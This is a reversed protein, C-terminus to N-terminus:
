NLNLFERGRWSSEQESSRNGDWKVLYNNTKSHRGTIVGHVIKGAGGRGYSPEEWRWVDIAIQTKGLRNNAKKKLEDLSKAEIVSLDGDGLYPKDKHGSSDYPVSLNAYFRGQKDLYVGFTQGKIDMTGVEIEGM